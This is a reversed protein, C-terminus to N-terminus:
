TRFALLHALFGDVRSGVDWHESPEAAHIRRAVWLDQHFYHGSATGGPAYRDQLCPYVFKLNPALSSSSPTAHWYAAYDRFFGYLGLLGLATRDPAMGVASAFRFLPSQVIQKAVRRLRAVQDSM